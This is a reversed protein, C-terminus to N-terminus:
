VAKVREGSIVSSLDAAVIAYAANRYSGALAQAINHLLIMASNFGGIRGIRPEFSELCRRYRDATDFHYLCTPFFNL